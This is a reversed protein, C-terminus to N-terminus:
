QRLVGALSTTRFAVFMQGGNERLFIVWLQFSIIRTEDSHFVQHRRRLLRHLAEAQAIGANRWDPYLAHYTDALGDYSQAPSM